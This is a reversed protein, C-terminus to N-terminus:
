QSIGHSLFKLCCISPLICHAIYGGQPLADSSTLALEIWTYAQLKQFNRKMLCKLIKIIERLIMSPQTRNYYYYYYFLLTHMSLLTKIPGNSVTRVTRYVTYRYQYQPVGCPRGNDCVPPTGRIYTRVFTRVAYLYVHM